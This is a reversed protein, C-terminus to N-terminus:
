TLEYYVYITSGGSGAYDRLLVPVKSQYDYIGYDGAQSENLATVFVIPEEDTADYEGGGGDSSSDWLIGTVFAGSASSNIIPVLDIQRKSVTVSRTMSPTDNGQAWIMNVSDAFGSMNLLSDVETFDAVASENTTNRGLAQLSGFDISADGDTFFVLGTNSTEGSFNIFSTNDGGIDLLLTTTVNGYLTMYAPTTINFGVKNNTELIELISGNSSLPPDIVVYLTNPGPSAILWSWSFNANGHDGFTDTLNVSFNNGIQTGGADPDGDWLQVTFNQATDSGGINWVTVNITVNQQELYPGTPSVTINGANTMLDPPIIIVTRNDDCGRNGYYDACCVTWNHPGGSPIRPFFFNVPGEEIETDVADVTGDIYLTCNEVTSLVDNVFYTFTVSSNAEANDEPTFLTVIPPTVDDIIEFFSFDHTPTYLTKEGLSVTSYNGTAVSFTTYIYNWLGLGDTVNTERAVWEQVTGVSTTTINPATDRTATINIDEYYCEDGPGPLNGGIHVAMNESLGMSLDGVFTKNFFNYDNVSTPPISSTPSECSQGDTCYWIETYTSSTTNRAWVRCYESTSDVSSATAYGTVRIDDCTDGGCLDTANFSHFIGTNGAFVSFQDMVLTYSGSIHVGSPTTAYDTSASLNVCDSFAGHLGSLCETSPDDGSGLRTWDVGEFDEFLISYSYEPLAAYGPDSAGSNDYYVFYHNEKDASASVNARFRIECYTSDDGSLVNSATESNDTSVVRIENVCSSIDGGLGDVMVKVVVNTLDQGSNQSVYIAKRRAWSTDWWGPVQESTNLMRVIDNTVNVDALPGGYFDSANSTINAPEGLENGVEYVSQNTAVSVNMVYLINVTFFRTASEGTQSFADTCNVSWSYAGNTMNTVSFTEEIGETIPGSDTQNVTGNIILRCSSVTTGVDNVIYRFIVDGDGDVYALTPFIPTVVPGNNDITISTHTDWSGLNGLTDNARVRVQYSNGDPLGSLSWSCQYPATGDTDNCASKWSVSANERYEFTAVGISGIGTDTLTANVTYSATVSISEGNTPSMLVTLPGQTDVTVSWTASTNVNSHNDTCSVYWDYSGDSLTLTFTNAKGEDISNNTQNLEDDIYLSCSAIGSTADTVNYTFLVTSDGVYGTDPPSLLTINPGLRDLTIGTHVDYNGINGTSDNAFARFEYTNRDALLTLNWLCSSPSSTENCLRKWSVSSNERYEFMITDLGSEGDIATANATFLDLTINENNRPLDLVVTPGQTDFGVTIYTSNTLGNDDTVTVRLYCSLTNNLCESQTTTDWTCNSQVTSCITSPSSFGTNNDYEFVYTSLTGDSDYSASANINVTGALWSSDSPWTFAAVPHDNVTVNIDSSYVFESNTSTAECRVPWTNNGSEPGSTVTFTYQCTTNEPVSSSDAGKIQTYPEFEVSPRIMVVAVLATGSAVRIFPQGASTATVATAQLPYTTPESENLLWYRAGYGSATTGYARAESWQWVEFPSYYQSGTLSGTAGTDYHFGTDTDREVLIGDYGTTASGHLGVVGDADPSTGGCTSGPNDLWLIRSTMDRVASLSSTLVKIYSTDCSGVQLTDNQGSWPNTTTSMSVSASGGVYGWDDTYTGDSFDDYFLWINSQNDKPNTSNEDGFYLYYNYNSSNVGLAQGASFWISSDTENPRFVQRDVENNHTGNWYIIRLDKADDRFNTGTTDFDVRIVHDAAIASITNVRMQHRKSFSTNWWPAQIASLDGCDYSNIDVSLDSTTNTVQKWEIGDNYQVQLEVGSCDVFGEMCTVNCTQNFQYNNESENIEIDVTPAKMTANMNGGETVNWFLGASTNDTNGAKDVAFATTFNYDGSYKILYEVSWVGDDNTQDCSTTQNDSMDAEETGVGTISILAYVRDLGSVTDSATANLCIRSGIKFTTGNHNPASVSPDTTDIGLFRAVSENMNNSTSNDYCRIAWNYSGNTFTRTFNQVPLSENISSNTQDVSGNILLSCNEIGSSPDTVNYQFLISPTNYWDAAPNIITISPDDNDTCICVGGGCAGDKTGCDADCETDDCYAPSSGNWIDGSVLTDTLITTTGSNCDDSRDLYTSGSDYYITGTDACGSSCPATPAPSYDGTQNGSANCYDCYNVRLNDASGQTQNAGVGNLCTPDWYCTESTSPDVRSTYSCSGGNYDDICFLPALETDESWGCANSCSKDYYCTGSVIGPTTSNTSDCSVGCGVDCDKLFVGCSQTTQNYIHGSCATSSGVCGGSAGDSCTQDAAYYACYEGAHTTASQNFPDYQEACDFISSWLNSASCQRYDNTGGICLVENLDYSNGGDNYVCDDTDATCYWGTFSYSSDNVCYSDTGNGCVEDQAGGGYGIDYCNYGPLIDFACNQGTTCHQTSPCD